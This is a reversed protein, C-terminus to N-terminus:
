KTPILTVPQKVVHKRAEYTQYATYANMAAIPDAGLTTTGDPAVSVICSNLFAIALATCTFM